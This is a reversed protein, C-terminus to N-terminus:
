YHPMSTLTPGYHLSLGSSNHHQILSNLGKSHSSILGILGFSILGSCENSPSISSSFSWYKPWRFCLTSDNSLVRISPFLSPLLLLPSCCFIHHNSLMLLETSMFRLLSQSITLSLSDQHTATEPTEFLQVHTLLRVVVFWILSTCSCLDCVQSALYLAWPQWRRAPSCSKRPQKMDRQSERRHQLNGSPLQAKRRM